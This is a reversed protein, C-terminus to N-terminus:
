GEIWLVYASLLVTFISWYIFRFEQFPAVFFFTALYILSSVNIMGSNWNKRRISIGMLVLSAVLYTMGIFLFGAYHYLWRQYSYHISALFRQKYLHLPLMKVEEPPPTNEPCTVSSADKDLGILFRKFLIARHRLYILPHATVNRLWESKLSHIVRPDVSWPRDSEMMTPSM